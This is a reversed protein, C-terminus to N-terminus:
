SSWVCASTRYAFAKNQGVLYLFVWRSGDAQSEPHWVAHVGNIAGVVLGENMNKL